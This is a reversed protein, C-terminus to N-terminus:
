PEMKEADQENSKVEYIPCGYRVSKGLGPAHECTKRRGCENCNRSKPDHMQGNNVARGLSM